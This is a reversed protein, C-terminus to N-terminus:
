TVNEIQYHNQTAAKTLQPLNVHQTAAAKNNIFVTYQTMVYTPISGAKEGKLIKIASDAAYKGIDSERVGLAFAAGQNVSGDDSSIVQLNSRQAQQVLTRIGSVVLEDKLIFIAQSDSDIHKTVSYLDPLQQIMLTQLQLGNKKAAIEAEKVEAFIKDDASYILTIKKITPAAQHIFAIQQSVSIEDLVSTVNDFHVNKPLEAAVAVIPKDKIMRIAMQSTSTGIPAILDVQNHQFKQLIAQQIGSNGEANNVIFNVPEHYSAKIETEFGNVIQDMATLEIPVVIGITKPKNEATANLSVIGLLTALMLKSTKMYVVM